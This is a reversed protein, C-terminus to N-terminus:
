PAGAPAAAPVRAPPGAACAALLAALADPATRRLYRVDRTSFTVVRLPTLATVTATAHVCRPAALPGCADGPGLEAITEGACRVSGRGTAVLVLEQSFSGDLLMRGGAPIAAESACPAIAALERLSLPQLYTLAALRLIDM